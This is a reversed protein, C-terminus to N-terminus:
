ASLQKIRRRLWEDASLSDSDATKPNVRVTSEKAEIKPAPAPAESTVVPKSMRMELKGIERAMSIPDLNAILAGQDPNNALHYLIEPGNDTSQAVNVLNQNLWTLSPDRTVRLYDEHEQQFVTEKARFDAQRQVQQDRLQQQHLAKQSEQQAFNFLYQTYKAEDYEFDALTKDPQLEQKPALEQAQKKWYEKEQAEQLAKREAERRAKTIEDIREQVKGKGKETSSDSDESDQESEPGKAEVDEAKPKSADEAQLEQEMQEPTEAVEAQADETM